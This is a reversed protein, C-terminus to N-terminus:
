ILAFFVLCALIVVGVIFLGGWLLWEIFAMRDVSKKMRLGKQGTAIVTRNQTYQGVQANTPMQWIISVSQAVCLRLSGSASLLM